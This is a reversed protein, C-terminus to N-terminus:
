AFIASGVGFALSCSGLIVLLHNCIWKLYDDKTIDYGHEVLASYETKKSLTEIYANAGYEVELEKFEDGALLTNIDVKDVNQENLLINTIKDNVKGKYEKVLDASYGTLGAFAKDIHTDIYTSNTRLYENIDVFKKVNNQLEEDNYEYKSWAYMNSVTGNSTGIRDKLAGSHNDDFKRFFNNIVDNDPRKGLTDEDWNDSDILARFENITLVGDEVGLKDAETVWENEKGFKALFSYIRNVENTM